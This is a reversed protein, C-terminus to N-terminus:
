YSRDTTRATRPTIVRSSLQSVRLIGSIRYVSRGGVVSVSNWPGSEALCSGPMTILRWFEGSLDDVGAARGSRLHKAARQLEEWQIPGLEVAIEPGLPANSVSPATTRVSWQIREYHDALTEARAESSVFVISWKREQIM